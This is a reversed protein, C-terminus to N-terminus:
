ASLAREAVGAYATIGRALDSDSTDEERAHSLGGISAVFMMAAPIVRAVEAADHLAGSTIAEERGGLEAAVARAKGVLDRDFPTPAIRWILEERVECGRHKPRRGRPM